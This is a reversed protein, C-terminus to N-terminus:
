VRTHAPCAAEVPRMTHVTCAESVCCCVWVADGAGARGFLCGVCWCTGTKVDVVEVSSPQGPTDGQCYALLAADASFSLARVPEDPRYIVTQPVCQQLDWICVLTDSGGTALLRTPPHTCSSSPLYLHCACTANMCPWLVGHQLLLTVVPSHLLEHCRM